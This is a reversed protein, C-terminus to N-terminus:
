RGAKRGVGQTTERSAQSCGQDMKRGNERNRKATEFIEYILGKLLGTAIVKVEDTEEEPYWGKGISM